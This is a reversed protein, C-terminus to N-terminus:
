RLPRTRDKKTEAIYEDNIRNRDWEPDGEFYETQDRGGAPPFKTNEAAKKAIKVSNWGIFYGDVVKRGGRYVTVRRNKDWTTGVM